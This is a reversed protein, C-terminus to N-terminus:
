LRQQAPDRRFLAPAHGPEGSRDPHRRGVNAPASRAARDVAGETGPAALRAGQVAPDSRFGRRGAFLHQAFLSHRCPGHRDRRRGSRAGRHHLAVPQRDLRWIRRHPLQVRRAPVPRDFLWQRWAAPRRRLRRRDRQPRRPCLGAIIRRIDEDTAARAEVYPKKGQYTHAFDPATTASSSVPQGGGLDPHVLRGMHWLQAVIRGGADHVADTVRKWGASKRMTGCAPRM